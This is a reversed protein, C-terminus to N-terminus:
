RLLIIKHVQQYNEFRLRVLYIGSAWSGSSLFIKHNGAALTEAKQERVMQGNLNYVQLQLQGSQPLNISIITSNNFPNPYNAVTLYNEAVKAPSKGPRIATVGFYARGIITTDLVFPNVKGDQYTAITESRLIEAADPPDLSNWYRLIDKQILFFNEDSQARYMTFFYFISRAVNGKHDLRPEFEVNSKIKSYEEVYQVPPITTVVNLRFWQNVQDTPIYNFPLDGRASNAVENTPFIHHLDSEAIGIAGKSRPWTHEANIIPNVANTYTRPNPSNYPVYITYGTYVCTVSDNHNDILAYMKDRADNYSLTSSTKYRAVLSDILEEGYLQPFIVQSYIQGSFALIYFITILSLVINKNFSYKTIFHKISLYETKLILGM